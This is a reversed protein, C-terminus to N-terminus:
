FYSVPQDKIRQYELRRRCTRYGFISALILMCTAGLLVVVLEGTHLTYNDRVSIPVPVPSLLPSYLQSNAQIFDQTPFKPPSCGVTHAANNSNQYVRVWDVLFHAPFIRCCYETSGPPCRQGNAAGDRDGCVAAWNNSMATNLLLYMPEAPIQRGPLGAYQQELSHAPIEFIFDDDLYWRLFGFEGPEWELRFTHQAQYLDQSGMGDVQASVADSFPTGYYASNIRARSGFTLGNYWTHPFNPEQGAPPRLSPHLRPALQLSTSVLSWDYGAMAEFIDIETAGRGQHPLLGTPPNGNCKSIRQGDADSPNAGVVDETHMCHDFSWPWTGDTSGRWTARGLNGMLWAAPWLGPLNGPGPLQVSLEVIGGTFCFKNWGQLMGSKYFRTFNQESRTVENWATYSTPENITTINLMGNSTTVMSSHYYQLPDNVTDPRDLATWKPDRGDVFSRGPRNFEDSMVLEYPKDQGMIKSVFADSPTDPDVWISSLPSSRTSAPLLWALWM